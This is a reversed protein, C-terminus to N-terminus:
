RYGEVIALVAAVESSEDMQTVEVTTDHRFAPRWERQEFFGQLQELHTGVLVARRPREAVIECNENAAFYASLNPLKRAQIDNRLIPIHTGAYHGRVGRPYVRFADRVGHVIVDDRNRALDQLADDTSSSSEGEDGASGAGGTVVTETCAPAYRACSRADAM